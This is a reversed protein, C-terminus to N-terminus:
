CGDDDAWAAALRDPQPRPGSAPAEIVIRFLDCRLIAATLAAPLGCSPDSFRITVAFAPAGPALGLTRAAARPPAQMDIHAAVPVPEPGPPAAAALPARNLGADVGGHECGGGAADLRGALYTTSLAAAHGNATWRCRIVSAEAAPPLGLLLGIDEPIRRWSVSRSACSVSAGMPDIYSGVGPLGELTILYDAPSARYLSGDPLQRLFHRATLERVAGEIEVLSVNFRRALVTPQPLRWGPGHAGISAAMRETLV